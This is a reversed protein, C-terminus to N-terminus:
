PSRRARRSTPIPRTTATSPARRLRVKAATAATRRRPPPPVAASTVPAGNAAAYATAAATPKSTPKANDHLEEYLQPAASTDVSAEAGADGSGLDGNVLDTTKLRWRWCREASYNELNWWHELLVTEAYPLVSPDGAGPGGEGADARCTDCAPGCRAPAGPHAGPLKVPLGTFAKIRLFADVSASPNLCLEADDATRTTVDGDRYEIEGRSRLAGTARLRLPIQPGGEIGLGAIGMWSANGSYTGTLTLAAAADAAFSIEGAGLYHSAMPDVMLELQEITGPGVGGGSFALDADTRMTVFVIFVGVPTEIAGEYVPVNGTTLRGIKRGAIPIRPFVQIPGIVVRRPKLLWKIFAKIKDIVARVLSTLRAIMREILQRLRTLIGRVAAVLRSIAGRIADLTRRVVARIAEVTRRVIDGIFGLVRRGIDRLAVAFRRVASRAAEIARTIAQAAAARARAIVSAIANYARSWVDAIANRVTRVASQVVDIAAGLWSSSESESKQKEREAEREADRSLKEADTQGQQLQEAAQADGETKAEQLATTTETSQADAQTKADDLAASLETRGSARSQDAAARGEARLAEQGAMGAQVETELEREHTDRAEQEDAAHQQEARDIETRSAELQPALDAAWSRRAATLAKNAGTAAPAATAAESAGTAAPAPGAAPTGGDVDIPAREPYLSEEGQPADVQTRAAGDEQTVHAQLATTEGTVRAPAADGTLEVQPPPAPPPVAGPNTTPLASVASQAQQVAAASM